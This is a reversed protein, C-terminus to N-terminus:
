NHLHGIYKSKYSLSYQPLKPSFLVLIIELFSNKARIIIILITITPTIAYQM